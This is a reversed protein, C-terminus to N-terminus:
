NQRLHWLLDTFKRFQQAHFWIQERFTNRTLTVGWYNLFFFFVMLLAAFFIGLPELVTGNYLNNVYPAAYEIVAEAEIAPVSVASLFYAWALFYGAMNGHSYQGYRVISGSRPIMSGLEAYNLAIILVIIGGIIWSIIAAPGAISSAAYAAFLWGSGIIGGLSLFLLDWTSLSRRLKKDSREAVVETDTM